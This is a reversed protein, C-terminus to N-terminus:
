SRREPQSRRNIGVFIRRHIGNQIKFDLSLKERRPRRRRQSKENKEEDSDNETTKNESLFLSLSFFFSSLLLASLQLLRFFFLFLRFVFRDGFITLTAAPRLSGIPRLQRGEDTRSTERSGGIKKQRETKSQLRRVASCNDLGVPAADTFAGSSASPDPQRVRLLRASVSLNRTIAATKSPTAKVTAATCNRGGYTKVSRVELAALSRRQTRYAVAISHVRGFLGSVDRRSSCYFGDFGPYSPDVELPVDISDGGIDTAGSASNLFSTRSTPATKARRRNAHLDDCERANM